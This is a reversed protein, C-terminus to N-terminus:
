RRVITRLRRRLVETSVAYQIAKANETVREFGLLEHFRIGAENSHQVVTRVSTATEVELAKLAERLLRRVVGPGSDHRILVSRLVVSDEHRNFRLSALLREPGGPVALVTQGPVKLLDQEVVAHDIFMGVSEFIPIMLEAELDLLQRFLGAQKDKLEFRM